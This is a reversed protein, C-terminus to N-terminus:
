QLLNGVGAGCEGDEGGGNPHDQVLLQGGHGGGGEDRDEEGKSKEPSIVFIEGLVKKLPQLPSTQDVKINAGDFVLNQTQCTLHWDINLM